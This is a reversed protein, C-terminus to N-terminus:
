DSSSRTTNKNQLFGEQEQDILNNELMFTKLRNNLIREFLKGIHSSIPIPRYASPESYNPKLPKKLFLVRTENWPWSASSRCSNFLNILCNRFTPGSMAIMKPHIHNNDPSCNMKSVTEIVHNLERSSITANFSLIRLQIVETKELFEIMKLEDNVAKKFDEDFNEEKLHKCSFFTDPLIRAKQDSDFCLGSTSKLPSPIQYKNTPFVRKISKWFVNEHKAQNVEQLKRLTWNSAATSLEVKFRARAKLLAEHNQQTSTRKYRKGFSRVENSFQTLQDNWFSNSKKTISNTPVCERNVDNKAEELYNWAAIIDKFIPNDPFSM